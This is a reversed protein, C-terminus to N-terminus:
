SKLAPPFVTTQIRPATMAQGDTFPREPIPQPLERLGNPLERQLERLGSPLPLLPASGYPDKLKPLSRQLLEINKELEDPDVDTAHVPEDSVAEHHRKAIQATAPNDSQAQIHLLHLVADKLASM